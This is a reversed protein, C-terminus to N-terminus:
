QKSWILEWQFYVAGSKIDVHYVKGNDLTIEIIGDSISGSTATVEGSDEAAGIIRAARTADTLELGSKELITQVTTNFPHDKWEKARTMMEDVTGDAWETNDEVTAGYEKNDDDYIVETKQSDAMSEFEKLSGYMDKVLMGSGLLWAAYASYDKDQELDYVGINGKGNEKSIVICHSNTEEIFYGRQNDITFMSMAVPEETSIEYYINALTMVTEADEIVGYNYLPVLASMHKIFDNAITANSNSYSLAVDNVSYEGIKSDAPLEEIPKWEVMSTIKGGLEQSYKEAITYVNTQFDEAKYEVADKTDEEAEAAEGVSEEEADAAEGVSEEEVPTLKLRGEEDSEINVIKKENGISFGCGCVIISLVVGIALLALIRKKM